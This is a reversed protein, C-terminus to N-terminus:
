TKTRPKVGVVEGNRGVEVSARAGSLKVLDQLKIIPQGPLGAADLMACLRKFHRGFSLGVADIGIVFAEADETVTDGVRWKVLFSVGGGPLKHVEEVFSVADHWGPKLSSTTPPQHSMNRATRTQPPERQRFNVGSPVTEGPPTKM